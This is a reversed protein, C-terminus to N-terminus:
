IQSYKLEENKLPISMFAIPAQIKERNEQMVISSMTHELADYYIIFEKTYDPHVLIPAKVIADKIDESDRKGVDSWKFTKNGKMM